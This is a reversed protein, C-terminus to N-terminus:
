NIVVYSLTSEITENLIGENQIMTMTVTPKKMGLVAGKDNPGLYNRLLFMDSEMKTQCTKYSQHQKLEVCLTYKGSKKALKFDVRKSGDM